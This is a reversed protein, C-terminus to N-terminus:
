HLQGDQAVQRGEAFFLSAFGLFNQGVQFGMIRVLYQSGNVFGGIQCVGMGPMHIHKGVARRALASRTLQNGTGARGLFVGIQDLHHHM